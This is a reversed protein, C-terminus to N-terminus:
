AAMLSRIMDCVAAYHSDYPGNLMTALTSLERMLAMYEAEPAYAGNVPADMTAALYTECRALVTPVVSVFAEALLEGKRAQQFREAYVTIAFDLPPVYRTRPPAAPEVSPGLVRVPQPYQALARMALSFAEADGATATDDM